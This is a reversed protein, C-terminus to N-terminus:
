VLLEREICIKAIAELEAKTFVKGTPNHPTNIVLMRTKPSLLSNLHDFDITFDPFKLTLYKPIAGAMACTAPYSDYFPEFLIVEDGPDLLGMMTSFIGETAGSFVVVERMPDYELGYLMKQRDAIAQVLLPHGMSRAYQNHGARLAEIAADIVDSPGDFDPFGQSLNIAEHEIALRTM